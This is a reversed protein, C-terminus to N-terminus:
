KLFAILIDAQAFTPSALGHELSLGSDLAHLVAQLISGEKSSAREDESMGKDKSFEEWNKEKEEYLSQYAASNTLNQWREYAARDGCFSGVSLEEDDCRGYADVAGVFNWYVCDDTTEHCYETLTNRKQVETYESSNLFDDLEARTMEVMPHAEIDEIDPPLVATDDDEIDASPKSHCSGDEAWIFETEIDCNYPNLDKKQRNTLQEWNAPLQGPETAEGPAQSEPNDTTVTDTSNDDQVPQTQNDTQEEDAPRNQDDAPTSQDIQSQDDASSDEVQEDDNGNFVLLLVIVLAIALAVAGFVVFNNSNEETKDAM